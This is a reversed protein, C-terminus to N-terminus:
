EDEGSGEASSKLREILKILFSPLPTGIKQLNELISLAENIILWITVLLGVATLGEPVQLTLLKGFSIILYDAVMGVAIVVLYSVKKIIGEIGRKSSLSRTLWANAMGTAYDLIMLFILITMPIAMNKFYATFATLMVAVTAKIGTGSM